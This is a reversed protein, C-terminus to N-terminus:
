VIDQINELVIMNEKDDGTGPRWTRMRMRCLRHTLMRIMSLGQVLWMGIQIVVGGVRGNCFDVGGGQRKMLWGSIVLNELPINIRLGSTGIRLMELGPERMKTMLLLLSSIRPGQVCGAYLIGAFGLLLCCVVM